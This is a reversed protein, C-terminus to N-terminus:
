ANIQGEEELWPEARAGVGTVRWDKLLTPSAWVHKCLQDLGLWWQVWIARLQAMHQGHDHYRVPCYRASRGNRGGASRVRPWYGEGAKQWLLQGLEVTYGAQDEKRWVLDPGATYRRLGAGWDPTEARKAHSLVLAFTHPHLTGEALLYVAEADPHLDVRLPIMSTQVRTGLAAIQGIGVMGSHGLRGLSSALEAAADGTADRGSAHLDARKKGIAWQVLAVMTTETQTM